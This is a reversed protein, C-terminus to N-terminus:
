RAAVSLAAEAAAHAAETFADEVTVGQWTPPKRLGLLWLVTAATDTTKVNSLRAQTSVGKGWVIWPITTDRPDDSGHDRDHGGHDATVIVTYNGAGYAADANKLLTNVASDARRVAWGYAFSVWGVSHGEYDPEGVHVFLLNPRRRKMYSIAEPITQTAMWTDLGRPAQTYTLTGPKQLHRFKAKSFFAATSFGATSAVEFVTEVQVTGVQATRDNNWTIGHVEPTVGTLMSTHSPLTKSPMITQAEATYAGESQLRLLTNAGFRKIADPRLGDISIVIVHDTVAGRKPPTSAPGLAIVAGVSFTLFARSEFVRM